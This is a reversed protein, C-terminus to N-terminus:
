VIVHSLLIKEVVKRLRSRLLVMDINPCTKQNTYEYHGKVKEIPIAYRNFIDSYLRDLSNYQSKTFQDNGVLCIGISNSNHGKVHAGIESELRGCQITGDRKIVYHYGIDQWGRDKHWQRIDEIDIDKGNHTASCHIVLETPIQM